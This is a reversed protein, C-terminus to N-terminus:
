RQERRGRAFCAYFEPTQARSERSEEEAFINLLLFVSWALFKQSSTQLCHTHQSSLTIDKREQNTLEIAADMPEKECQDLFGPSDALLIGGVLAEFVRRMADGPSLLVGASNSEVLLETPWCKLLSWTPNRQCLDRLIRIVVMCSHRSLARSHFWKIHRLEALAEEGSHVEEVVLLDGDGVEDVDDPRADGAAEEM